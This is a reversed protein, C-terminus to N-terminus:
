AALSGLRFSRRTGSPPKILPTASLTAAVAATRTGLRYMSTKNNDIATEGREREVRSWELNARPGVAILRSSAYSKRAVQVGGVSIGQGDEEDFSPIGPINAMRNGTAMVAMDYSRGNALVSNPLGTPELRANYVFLKRVGYADQRLFRGIGQYRGRERDKWAECERILSRGYWDIRELQDLGPASMYPEPGIGLLSEIAIRGGDGDGAVAIRKLGRLPWPKAMRQLLGRLNIITESTDTWQPDGLGRADILRTFPIREGSKLEVDGEGNAFGNLRVRVVEADTVVDAYQALTMRIVWAMDYNTQYERASIMSAQIPAGPLYNPQAGIDLAAGPGGARNRSNLLFTPRDTAAFVGGARKSRELVIPKPNGAMVRTAAYVAAHYGSGIIVERGQPYSGIRGSDGTNIGSLLEDRDDRWWSDLLEDAYDRASPELAIGALQMELPNAFDAGRARAATLGRQMGRARSRDIRDLLDAVQPSPDM